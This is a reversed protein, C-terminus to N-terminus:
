TKNNLEQYDVYIQLSSDKKPVFIIPASAPSTSRHIWDKSLNNDLYEKLVGLKKESLKYVPSKLPDERVLNIVHDHSTHSPLERAMKESFM